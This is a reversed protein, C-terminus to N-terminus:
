EGSADRIAKVPQAPAPLSARVLSRVNLASRSFYALPVGLGTLILAAYPRWATPDQAVVTAEETRSSLTPLIAAAAKKLSELDLSTQPKQEVQVPPPNQPQDVDPAPTAAPSPEEPRVPAEAPKPKLRDLYATAALWYPTDIPGLEKVESLAAQEDDHDVTVQKVYWLAAARSGDSDFFFLPRNDAESLEAYFRDLNAQNFSDATIPLLVYRIGARQAAPVDEPPIESPQRLDIATKYGHEALFAWGADTPRSGAAVQLDVVKFRAFGPAVSAPTESTSAAVPVPVAPGAPQSEAPAAANGSATEAPPPTIAAAEDETEQPNVSATLPPLDLLPDAAEPAVGAAPRGAPESTVLTGSPPGLRSTTTGGKPKYAEYLTKRNASTAQGSTPATSAEPIAELSPVTDIPGPGPIVADAPPPMVIPAGEIPVGEYIPECSNVVPPRHFLKERLRCNQFLGGCRGFGNGCDGVGFQACGGFALATLALAVLGLRNVAPRHRVPPAGRGFGGNRFRKLTFM